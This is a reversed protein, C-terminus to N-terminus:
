PFEVPFDSCCLSASAKELLYDWVLFLLNLFEMYFPASLLQLDAGRVTKESSIELASAISVVREPFWGTLPQTLLRDRWPAPLLRGFGARRFDMRLFIMRRVQAPVHTMPTHGVRVM